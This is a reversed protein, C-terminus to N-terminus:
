AGIDIDGCSLFPHKVSLLLMIIIVLLQKNNMFM